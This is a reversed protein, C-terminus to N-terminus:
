KSAQSTSRALLGPSAQKFLAENSYRRLLHGEIELRVVLYGNLHHLKLCQDITVKTGDV